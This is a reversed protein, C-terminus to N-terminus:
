KKIKQFRLYILIVFIYYRMMIGFLKKIIFSFLAYKHALHSDLKYSNCWIIINNMFLKLAALKKKATNLKLM